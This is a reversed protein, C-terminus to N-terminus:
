KRRVRFEMGRVLEVDNHPVAVVLGSEPNLDKFGVIPVQVREKLKWTNPDFGLEWMNGWLERPVGKRVLEEELDGNLSRSHESNSFRFQGFGLKPFRIEASYDEEEGAHPILAGVILPISEIRVENLLSRLQGYPAVFGGDRLGTSLFLAPSQLIDPRREEAIIYHDLSCVISTKTLSGEILYSAPNVAWPDLLEQEAPSAKVFRERQEVDQHDYQSFPAFWVGPPVLTDRDKGIGGLGSDEDYPAIKRYIPERDFRM